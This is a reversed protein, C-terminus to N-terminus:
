LETLKKFSCVSCPKLTIQEQLGTVPTLCHLPGCVQRSSREAFEGAAPGQQFGLDTKVYVTISNFTTKM